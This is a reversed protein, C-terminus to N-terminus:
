CKKITSVLLTPFHSATYAHRGRLPAQKHVAVCRGFHRSDCKGPYVQPLTSMRTDKQGYGAVIKSTAQLAERWSQLVLPILWGEM